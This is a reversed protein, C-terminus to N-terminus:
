SSSVRKGRLQAKILRVLRESHALEELELQEEPSARGDNQKRLLEEVREEVAPSPHFNLLEDRTPQSALFKALEEVFSATLRKKGM